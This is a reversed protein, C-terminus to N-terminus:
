MVCLLSDHQILSFLDESVMFYDNVSNGFNSIFTYRDQLEGNCVGNLTNLGFATCMNLLKKRIFEICHGGFM